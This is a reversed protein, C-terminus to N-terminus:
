KECYIFNENCMIKSVHSRGHFRSLNCLLPVISLNCCFLNRECNQDRPLYTTGDTLQQCSFLIFSVLNIEIAQTRWLARQSRTDCFRLSLGPVFISMIVLWYPSSTFVLSLGPVFISMMVLWYPSSTFVLPLTQLAPFRLRGILSERKKETKCRIPQSTPALKRSWGCLFLTFVLIIASKKPDNVSMKVLITNDYM